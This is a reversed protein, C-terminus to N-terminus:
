LGGVAIGVVLGFYTRNHTESYFVTAELSINELKDKGIEKVLTRLTAETNRVDAPLDNEVYVNKYEM